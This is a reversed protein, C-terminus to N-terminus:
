EEIISYLLRSCATLESDDKCNELVYTLYNKIEIQNNLFIPMSSLVKSMISRKVARSSKKFLVTFDEVIADRQKMIYENDAIETSVNSDEVSMFLSTSLLKEAKKLNEFKATLKKKKIIDYNTLLVDDLITELIMINESLSEQVGELLVFKDMLLIDLEDFDNSSICDNVIAIANNFAAVDKSEEIENKNLTLIITYTDNIIEQLLVYCSAEREIFKAALNFEKDLSNFDDESLNDYDANALMTYTEYLNPYENLFGEPKKILSTTRIMDLFNDLSNQEGGKYISLTNTIIDFFKNKTMRVPLQGMVIQLKSNIVVTDNESFIYRFVDEVLKDIDVDDFDNKVGCEVRNLIYEYIEYADTFSTLNTMKNEVKDRLSAVAEIARKDLKTGKILYKKIITTAESFCEEFDSSNGDENRAEVMEKMTYYNMCMKVVAYFCYQESLLKEYQAINNELDYNRKIDTVLKKCTNKM